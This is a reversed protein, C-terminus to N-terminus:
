QETVRLWSTKYVTTAAGNSVFVREVQTILSPNM